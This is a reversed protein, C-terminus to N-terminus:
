LSLQLQKLRSAFDDHKELYTKTDGLSKYANTGFMPEYNETMRTILMKKTQSVGSLSIRTKSRILM